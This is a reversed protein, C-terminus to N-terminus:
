RSSKNMRRPYNMAISRVWNIWSLIALVIISNVSYLGYDRSLEVSGSMQQIVAGLPNAVVFSFLLIYGILYVFFLVFGALLRGMFYTTLGKFLSVSWEFIRLSIGLLVGPVLSYAVLKYDLEKFYVFFVTQVAVLVCYFIGMQAFCFFRQGFDFERKVLSRNKVAHSYRGEDFKERQV